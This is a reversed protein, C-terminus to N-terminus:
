LKIVEVFFHSRVGEETGRKGKGKRCKEGGVLQFACCLLTKATGGLDTNVTSRDIERRRKKKRKCAFSRNPAREGREETVDRSELTPRATKRKGRNKM